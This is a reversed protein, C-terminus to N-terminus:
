ETLGSREKELEREGQGRVGGRNEGTGIWIFVRIIKHYPIM